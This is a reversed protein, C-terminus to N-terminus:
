PAPTGGLSTVVSNFKAKASTGIVTVASVAVVAILAVMLAYEVMTAGKQDKAKRTFIFKASQFKELMKKM